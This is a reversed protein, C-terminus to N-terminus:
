GNSVGSDLLAELDEMSVYSVLKGFKHALEVEARVGVSQDWGLLMLVKVEDCRKIFDEDVWAWAEWNNPVGYRILPHSHVIPSFVNRHTKLLWVTAKCADRYRQRVVSPAPHSYPSALYIM